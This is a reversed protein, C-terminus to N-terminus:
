GVFRDRGRRLLNAELVPNVFQVRLVREQAVPLNSRNHIPFSIPDVLIGYPAVHPFHADHGDKGTRIQALSIKLMPDIRVQEPLQFDCLRILHPRHVDRIDSHRMAPHIQVGDHVPIGTVDDIPLEILAQLDAKHQLGHFSCQLSTLRSNDITILAAM